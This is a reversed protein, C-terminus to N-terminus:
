NKTFDNRNTECIFEVNQKLWLAMTTPHINWAHLENKTIKVFDGEHKKKNRKMYSKLQTSNVFKM